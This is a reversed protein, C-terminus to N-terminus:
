RKHIPRYCKIFGSSRLLWFFFFLLFEWEERWSKLLICYRFFSFFNYNKKLVEPLLIFILSFQINFAILFFLFYRIIREYFFFYIMIGNNNNINDLATCCHGLASSIHNQQLKLLVRHFLFFVLLLFLM